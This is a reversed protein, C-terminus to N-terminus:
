EFLKHVILLQKFVPESTVFWLAQAGYLKLYRSNLQKLLKTAQKVNLEFIRHLIQCRTFVRQIIVSHHSINLGM